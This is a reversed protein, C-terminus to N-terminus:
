FGYRRSHHSIHCNAVLLYEERIDLAVLTYNMISIVIARNSGITCNVHTKGGREEKKKKRGRNILNEVAVSQALLLMPTLYVPAPRACGGCAALVKWILVIIYM